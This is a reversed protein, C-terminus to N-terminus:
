LESAPSLEGSRLFRRSFRQIRRSQDDDFFPVASGRNYSMINGPTDPHVRNGFFHGLEHALVTPRAISSVIVFHRGPMGAPRWHVGMRYRSPDDVDRLSEVIFCNIVDDRLQRGLRHRDRRTEMRTHAEPLEHVATRSFSLGPKEFIRNVWQVQDDLWAEDVVPKGDVSAVAFSLPLTPFEEADEAQQASTSGGCLAVSLLAAVAAM